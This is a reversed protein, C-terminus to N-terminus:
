SLQTGARVNNKFVIWFSDCLPVNPDRMLDFAVSKPTKADFAHIEHIPL